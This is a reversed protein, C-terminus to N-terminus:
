DTGSRCLSRKRSGLRTLQRGERQCVPADAASPSAASFHQPSTSTYVARIALSSQLREFSAPARSNSGFREPCEPARGALLRRGEASPAPPLGQTPEDFYKWAIFEGWDEGEPEPLEGTLLREMWAPM